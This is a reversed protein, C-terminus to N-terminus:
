LGARSEYSGCPGGVDHLMAIFESRVFDQRGTEKRARYVLSTGAPNKNYLSLM